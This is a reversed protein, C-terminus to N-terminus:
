HLSHPAPPPSPSLVELTAAISTRSAEPAAHRRCEKVIKVALTAQIEELVFEVSRVPGGQPQLVTGAMADAMAGATNLVCMLLSFAAALSASAGHRVGPKLEVTLAWGYVGGPSGAVEAAKCSDELISDLDLSVAQRVTATLFRPAPPPSSPLTVGRTTWSSGANSPAFELKTDTLLLVGDIQGYMQTCIRAEEVCLLVGTAAINSDLPPSHAYPPPIALM